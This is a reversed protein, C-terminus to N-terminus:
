RIWYSGLFCKAERNIVYIQILQNHVDAFLIGFHLFRPNKWYGRNRSSGYAFHNVHSRFFPAIHYEVGSGAKWHCGM